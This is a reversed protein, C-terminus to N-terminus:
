VKCRQFNSLSKQLKAKLHPNEIKQKERSRETPTNEKSVRNKRFNKSNEMKVFVNRMKMLAEMQM